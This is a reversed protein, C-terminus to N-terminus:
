DGEWRAIRQYLPMSEWGPPLNASLLLPLKQLDTFRYAGIVCGPGADSFELGAYSEFVALFLRTPGSADGPKAVSVVRTFDRDPIKPDFRFTVTPQPGCAARNVDVELFQPWGDAPVGTLPGSMDALAAKPAAIYMSFLQRAQREQYYRAAGVLGGLVFVASIAVAAARLAHRRVLPAMEPRETRFAIFATVVQHALFGMAWWGIFELHFYHREQFQVAPYGGFYALFFLLFFGLRISVSATLLVAAVALPIGLVHLSAVARERMVFFWGSWDKAPPSQRLFPVEVIQLISAYARTVFDGPFSSVIDFALQGSAVDYEHGCYPPAAVAPQTRKAFGQVTSIVYGDAYAYGFDYPAPRLRLSTEFPTQMGLLTVHWMCGGKKYVASTIPWSVVAFTAVFAVTAATKLVLNKTVGGDLFVFLVIVLVPLDILLDTRFGYGLGLVAGYAISLLVVTVRRVPWRVLAGLILILALTFPAKSYDRLHPLNILHLPSTAVGIACGIALLRGMGLRFIGYSLTVVTGFFLGFLPGMGSWSIGLIRWAWGVSYQLYTWAEQYLGNEGLKMDSPLEACNLRDRRRWLFDELVKPQPQSIVFGHGCAIMVAPEFYVQYFVPEGGQAVWTDWFRTAWAGSAVLVIVAIALDARWGRIM